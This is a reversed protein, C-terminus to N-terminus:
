NRTEVRKCVARWLEKTMHTSPEWLAMCTALNEEKTRLNSGISGTPLSDKQLEADAAFAPTGLLPPLTLTVIASLALFTRFLM